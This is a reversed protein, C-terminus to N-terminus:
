HWTEVDKRPGAVRYHPVYVFSPDEEMKKVAGGIALPGKKEGVRTYKGAAINM